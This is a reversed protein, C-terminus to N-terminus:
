TGALSSKEQLASRRWSTPAGEVIAAGIEGTDSESYILARSPRQRDDKTMLLAALACGLIGAAAGVDGLRDALLEVVLPEPMIDVERLYAHSFSRGFYGEGSHAAIVRHVREAGRERLSRFAGALADGSIRDTQSFAAGRNTSALDELRVATPLRSAPHDGAALLAFAAAEGPVTGETGPGLVREARVLARVSAPACLSDIGGVIALKTSDSSLWAAADALAAFSGARGQRYKWSSTPEVLVSQAFVAQLMRGEDEHLDSPLALLLPVRRARLPALLAALDELGLRALAELRGLRPADPELGPVQAAAAPEGFVNRVSSDTFNTLGAGMAALAPEIALGLSTCAAFGAIHVSAASTM